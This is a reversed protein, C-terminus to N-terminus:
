LKSVETLPMARPKYLEGRYYVLQGRVMTACIGARITGRYPIFKAKSERIADELRIETHFDVFTFSAICGRGICGWRYLNLLTAPGRSLLKVVTTLEVVDRLALDLLLLSAIEISAIGSPCFEFPLSKEEITHPAHDTSIADLIHLWERLVQETGSSRLPPNVKAICGQSIEHSSNLLLYHPCTDVTFGCSKAIVASLANTVHTIHVRVGERKSLANCLRTIASLEAEISRCRWRSGAQCEAMLKPDEAHVMVLKNGIAKLVYDLFEIDEPYLKFGVIGPLQLLNRMSNIDHTHPVAAFIGYDCYAHNALSLLKQQLAEVNDLRPRTNPMDIVATFGGRVAARTGSEENEKYSLELGRLHVHIDIFGPFAICNSLDLHQDVSSIHHFGTYRDVVIGRDRDVILTVPIITGDVYNFFKTWISILSNSSIAVCRRADSYLGM